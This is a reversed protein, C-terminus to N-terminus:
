KEDLSQSVREIGREVGRVAGQVVNIGVEPVRVVAETATEVLAGPLKVATDIVDSAIKGFLGLM